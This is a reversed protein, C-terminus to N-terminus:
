SLNLDDETFENHNMNQIAVNASMFPEQILFTEISDSFDSQVVKENM